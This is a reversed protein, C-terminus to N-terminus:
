MPCYFPLPEGNPCWPDKEFVKGYALKSRMYCRRESCKDFMKCKECETGVYDIPNPCRFKKLRDSNLIDALTQDVINGIEASKEGILTDCFYVLGDHSINLMTTSGKCKHRHATLYTLPKGFLQTYNNDFYIERNTTAYKTQIKYVMKELDRIQSESPYLNSVDKGCSAFVIGSIIKTFGLEVMLEAWKEYHEVNYKTLVARAHMEIGMEKAYKATDVLGDFTGKRGSLFDVTERDYSDFSLQLMNLGSNVFRQLRNRPIRSRTSIRAHLGNKYSIKMYEELDSCRVPDGGGYFVVECGLRKAEKTIEDWRDLDIRNYNESTPKADAFCYICSFACTPEIAFNIQKLTDINHNYGDMREIENIINLDYLVRTNLKESHFEIRDILVTFLKQLIQSADRNILKEINYQIEEVTQSGNFQVIIPYIRKDINVSPLLLRNQGKDVIQLKGENVEVHFDDKLYPYKKLNTM